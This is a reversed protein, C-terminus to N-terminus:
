KCVQFDNALAEHRRIAVETFLIGSELTACSKHFAENAKNLSNLEQRMKMYAAAEIEDLDQAIAEESTHNEDLPQDDDTNDDSKESPNGASAITELRRKSSRILFSGVFIFQVHCFRSSVHVL